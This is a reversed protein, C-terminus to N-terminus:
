RKRQPRRGRNGQIGQRGPRKNASPRSSKGFSPKAAPAPEEVTDRGKRIMEIHYNNLLMLIIEESNESSAIEDLVGKYRKSREKQATTFDRLEAELRASLKQSLFSQLQEESPVAREELDIGAKRAFKKLDIAEMQNVLSIAIGRNGARATRGARHIYQDTDKHMDYIFVYELNSIDIGRAAVDTAVLFRLDNNKLRKMVAERANQNLDGSIQDADYGFRKLLASVYEVESRTNCFVIASQPDEMEIIRMMIRDKQMPDTIYFLHDMNSVHIGDGSFTLFEPEQLFRGALRKVSEPMTASFMASVRKRPVYEGIKVMDKYFGMSLMEDAEDFILFKLHKLDLSGKMLHDLIRGPTGVVIRVGKKLAEFQPKYSSGGYIATGDVDIFESLSNLENFVQSALERTPVLILAQCQQKSGALKECLPLLFAATKGSGTRSQVIADIGNLLYPAVGSQVAMPKEWGKAKIAKALEPSYEAFDMPPLRDPATEQTDNTQEQETM